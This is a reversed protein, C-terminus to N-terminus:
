DSNAMRRVQWGAEKASAAHVECMPVLQRWHADIIEYRSEMGCQETNTGYWECPHSVVRQQSGATREAARGQPLDWNGPTM